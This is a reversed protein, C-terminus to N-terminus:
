FTRISFSFLTMEKYFFVIYKSFVGDASRFGRTFKTDNTDM